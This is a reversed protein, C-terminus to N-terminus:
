HKSIREPSLSILKLGIYFEFCKWLQEWRILKFLEQLTEQLRPPNDREEECRRIDEGHEWFKSGYANMVM